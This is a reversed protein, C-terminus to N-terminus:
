ADMYKDVTLNYYSVFLKNDLNELFGLDVGQEYKLAFLHTVLKVPVWRILSSACSSTATTYEYVAM